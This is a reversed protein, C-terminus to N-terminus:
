WPFPGAWGKCHWGSPWGDSTLPGGRSRRPPPAPPIVGSAPVGAFKQDILDIFADAQDDSDEAIFEWIDLLDARARPQLVIVAM